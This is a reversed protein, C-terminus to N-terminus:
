SQEPTIFLEELRDLANELAITMVPPDGRNDKTEPPAMRAAAVAKAAAILDASAPAGDVLRAHLQRLLRLQEVNVLHYLSAGFFRHLVLEVCDLMESFSLGQFALAGAEVAAGMRKEDEPVTGGEGESM